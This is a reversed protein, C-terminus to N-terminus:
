RDGFCCNGNSDVNETLNQNCERTYYMCPKPEALLRAIHKTLLMSPPGLPRKVAPQTLEGQLNYYCYNPPTLRSDILSENLKGSEVFLQSPQINSPNLEVVEFPKSKSGANGGFRRRKM